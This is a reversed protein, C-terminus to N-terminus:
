GRGFYRTAAAVVLFTGVVILSWGGLRRWSRSRVWAVVRDVYVALQPVRVRAWLMLLYPLAAAAAFGVYVLVQVLVPSDGERAIRVVLYTAAAGSVSVVTNVAAFGFLERPRALEKSAVRPEPLDDDSQERRRLVWIGAIVFLVGAIEDFTQEVFLSEVKGQLVRAWTEPNALQFLVTLAVAGTAVGGAVVLGQRAVRGSRGLVAVQLAILTPSFGTALGLMVLGLVTGAASLVLALM